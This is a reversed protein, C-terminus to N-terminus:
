SEEEQDNVQVDEQDSEKEIEEVEFNATIELPNEEGKYIREQMYKQFDGAEISEKLPKMQDEYYQDSATFEFNLKVKKM